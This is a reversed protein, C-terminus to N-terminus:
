RKAKEKMLKVAKKGEQVVFSSQEMQNLFYAMTYYHKGVRIYWKVHHLKNAKWFQPFENFFTTHVSPFINLFLMHFCKRRYYRFVPLNITDHIVYKTVNNDNIVINKSVVINNKNCTKNIYFWRVLRYWCFGRSIFQCFLFHFYEQWVYLIQWFIKELSQYRWLIHCFSGVM